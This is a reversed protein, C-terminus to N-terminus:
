RSQRYMLYGFVVASVLVVSAQLLLPTGVLVDPAIIMAKLAYFLLKGVLMAVLLAMMTLWPSTRLAFRREAVTYLLVVASYEVIMCLAKAPAPMGVVLMSVLPLLLALAVANRRDAVLLMGSLIFLLMPNLRYLPLATIHSLTPVLCALVVLAVDVIALRLLTPKATIANM